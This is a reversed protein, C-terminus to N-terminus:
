FSIEFPNVAPSMNLMDLCIRQDVFDSAKSCPSCNECCLYSKFALRSKTEDPRRPMMSTGMGAPTEAIEIIDGDGNFPQDAVSLNLASEDEIEIEVISIPGGVRKVTGFGYDIKM